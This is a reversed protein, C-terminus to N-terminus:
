RCNAYMENVAPFLVKICYSPNGATACKYQAEKYAPCNLGEISKEYSTEVNQWLRLLESAHDRWEILSSLGGDFERQDNTKCFRINKAKLVLSNAINMSDRWFVPDIAYPNAQAEPLKQRLPEAITRWERGSSSNVWEDTSSFCHSSSAAESTVAQTKTGIKEASVFKGDAWIGGLVRGDAFTYTGQGNKKDDKFEGIYKDGKFQNNALYYFTGQGHRKDDKQEGVYKNGDAFIHTGQGHRNSDKFEGVYKEGTAWTFTGQGNLQGDKWEGVYKDGGAAYTGFCSSWKTVDSGQCPPLKSQQNKAVESRRREENLASDTQQNQPTIKEARVFKGGAWIGELSPRGDSYTNIGLGHRKDDKWEGVYKSGDPAFYTGQGNYNGDLWEGVYMSGKVINYTGFCNSWKTADSGRCPPLNSQGYATFALMTGIIILLLKKM